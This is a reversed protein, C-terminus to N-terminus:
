HVMEKSTCSVAVVSCSRNKRAFTITMLRTVSM